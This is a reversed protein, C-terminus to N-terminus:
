KTSLESSHDLACRITKNPLIPWRCSHGTLCSHQFSAYKTFLKSRQSKCTYWIRTSTIYEIYLGDLDSEVAIVDKCTTLNPLIQNKM